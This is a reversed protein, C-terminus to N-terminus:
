AFRPTYTLYGAIGAGILALVAVAFRLSREIV